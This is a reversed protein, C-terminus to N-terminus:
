CVSGNETNHLQLLFEELEEYIDNMDTYLSIELKFFHRNISSIMWETSLPYYDAEGDNSVIRVEKGNRLVVCYVYCEYGNKLRLRNPSWTKHLTNTWGLKMELTCGYQSFVPCYLNAIKKYEDFMKSEFSIIEHGIEESIIFEMLIKEM